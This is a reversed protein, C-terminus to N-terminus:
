RRQASRTFLQDAGFLTGRHTQVARAHLLAAANTQGQQQAEHTVGMGAALAQLHGAHGIFHLLDGCHRSKLLQQRTFSVAPSGATTSCPECTIPKKTHHRGKQTLTSRPQTHLGYFHFTEEFGPHGLRLHFDLSFAAIELEIDDAVLDGCQRRDLALLLDIRMQVGPDGVAANVGNGHFKEATGLPGRTGSGVPLSVLITLCIMVPPARRSPSIRMEPAFIEANGIRAAVSSASPGTVTQLRGCRCSMVVMISSNPRMPISGTISSFSLTSTSARVM